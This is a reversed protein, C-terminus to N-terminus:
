DVATPVNPLSNWKVKSLIIDRCVIAMKLTVSLLAIFQDGFPSRFCMWQLDSPRVNPKTMTACEWLIRGVFLCFCCHGAFHIAKLWVLGFLHFWFLHAAYSDMWCLSFFCKTIAIYSHALSHKTAARDILNVKHENLSNFKMGNELHLACFVCLAVMCM